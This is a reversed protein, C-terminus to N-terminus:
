QCSLINWRAEQSVRGDNGERASQEDNGGATSMVVMACIIYTIKKNDFMYFDTFIGNKQFHITFLMKIHIYGNLITIKKQFFNM